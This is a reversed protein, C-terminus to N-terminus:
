KKIVLEALNLKQNETANAGIAVRPKGQQDSKIRGQKTHTRLTYASAQASSM